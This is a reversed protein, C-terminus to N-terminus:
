LWSHSFPNSCARGCMALFESACDATRATYDAHANRRPFASRPRTYDDACGGPRRAYGGVGAGRNDLGPSAQLAENRVIHHFVIVEVAGGTMGVAKHTSHSLEGGIGTSLTVCAFNQRRCLHGRGSVSTKVALQKCESLVIIKRQPGASHRGTADQIADRVEQYYEAVVRGSDYFDQLQQSCYAM